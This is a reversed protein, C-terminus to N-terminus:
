FPLNSNDNNSKDWIFIVSQLTIKITELRFINLKSSALEDVTSKKDKLIFNEYGLSINIDKIEKKIQKETKM